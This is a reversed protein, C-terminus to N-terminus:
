RGATLKLTSSQVARSGAKVAWKAADRRKLALGVLGGVAVGGVIAKGMAPLLKDKKERKKALGAITGAIGLASVLGLTRDLKAFKSKVILVKRYQRLFNENRLPFAAGYEPMIKAMRKEINLFMGYHKAFVKKEAVPNLPKPAVMGATIGAVMGGVQGAPGYNESRIPVVRGRIRRFVVREKKKAM